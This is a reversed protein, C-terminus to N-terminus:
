GPCGLFSSVFEGWVDILPDGFGSPTKLRFKPSIIFERCSGSDCIRALLM